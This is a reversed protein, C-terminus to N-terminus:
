FHKTTRMPGNQMLVPQGRDDLYVFRVKGDRIDRVENAEIQRGEITIWRRGVFTTEVIEWHPHEIDFVTSSVTTGPLPHTKSFWLDSADARSYGPAAPYIRMSYKTKGLTKTFRAAGSDDYRVSMLTVIRQKGIQEVFREDERIPFALPSIVKINSMAVKDDADERSWIHFETTRNGKHDFTEKYTATGVQLDGNYLDLKTEAQFSGSSLAVASIVFAKLM